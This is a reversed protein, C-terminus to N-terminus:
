LRIPSVAGCQRSRKEDRHIDDADVDVVRLSSAAPGPTSTEVDDSFLDHPGAM